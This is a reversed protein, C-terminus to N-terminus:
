IPDRTPRPAPQRSIAAFIETGTAQQLLWYYYRVNDVYQVPVTGQAYGRKLHPYWADDALLPLHARVDEWSDKDADLSETIIRADELHGFGINYAAVAMLLRDDEPIREPLKDLVDSLYRAGGLISERPDLRDDIDMMAATKATLMMLGKVGTPSVADANWHSEQYAIAALLRWDIGTEREADFFSARYLPFRDNLHSMFARSNVFSFERVSEYYRALIRELEGTAQMTTFFENVAERLDDAGKPLAWALQGEAEVDFAVRVAPYYHRLVEFENSNVIAYDITGDAVRQILAESDARRNEAWSLDPVADLARYLMAVHSSGARVELQNGVVQALSAPRTSGMRYILQASVSQYGPGFSLM